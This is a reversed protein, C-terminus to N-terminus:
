FKRPPRCTSCIFKVKVGNIHLLQDEMNVMHKKGCKACKRHIKRKLIDREVEAYLEHREYYMKEIQKVTDGTYERKEMPKDINDSYFRRLCWYKDAFTVAGADKLIREVIKRCEPREKIKNM